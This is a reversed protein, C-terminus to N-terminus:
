SRAALNPYSRLQRYQTTTSYSKAASGNYYLRILNSPPATVQPSAALFVAEDRSGKKPVRSRRWFKLRAGVCYRWGRLSLNPFNLIKGALNPFNLIKGAPNPFNLIKRCSESFERDQLEGSALESGYSVVSLEGVQRDGHITHNGCPISLYTIAHNFQPKAM